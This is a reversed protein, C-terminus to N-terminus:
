VGNPRLLHAVDHMRRPIRGTGSLRPRPSEDSWSLLLFLLLLLLLVVGGLAPKDDAIAIATGAATTAFCIAGGTDLKCFGVLLITSGDEAGGGGGGRARRSPRRDGSGLGGDFGEGGDGTCDSVALEDDNGGAADDKCMPLFAVLPFGNSVSKEATAAAASPTPTPITSADIGVREANPASNVSNEDAGM